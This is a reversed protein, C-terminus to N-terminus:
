GLGNQRAFASLSDTAQEKSVTSGYGEPMKIIEARQFPVTLEATVAEAQSGNPLPISSKKITPRNSFVVSFDSFETAFKFQTQACTLGSMFLLTACLALIRPFSTSM